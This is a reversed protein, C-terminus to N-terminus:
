KLTFLHVILSKPMGQALQNLLFQFSDKKLLNCFCVNTKKLKTMFISM